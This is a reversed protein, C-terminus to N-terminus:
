LKKGHRQISQTLLEYIKKQREDTLFGLHADITNIDNRIAPGTQAEPPSLVNIKAATEAILPLLTEFPVDNDNCIDNAIAYLHNTFNSAFVAAVHLARRQLSSISFIRSTLTQAVHHLTQYDKENEAELCIPVDNWNIAREKSFTQLPYFSGRRNKPVIDTIPVSGSTHVVLRNEFPLKTSIGAIANDSVAVIYLDADALDGLDNIFDPSASRSYQQVLEIELSKRFANALHYAVNGNGILGIRIM